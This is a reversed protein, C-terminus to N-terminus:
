QLPQKSLTRAPSDAAGVQDGPQGQLTGPGAIAHDFASRARMLGIDGMGDQGHVAQATHLPQILPTACGAYVPVTAGATAQQAVLEPGPERGDGAPRM